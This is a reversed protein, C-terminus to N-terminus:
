RRRRRRRAQADESNKVSDTEIAKALSDNAKACAENAKALAEHSRGTQISKQQSNQQEQRVFDMMFADDIKKSTQYDEKAEATGRKATKNVITERGEENDLNNARRKMGAKAVAMETGLIQDEEDDDDSSIDGDKLALKEAAKIRVKAM